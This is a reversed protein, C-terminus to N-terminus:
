TNPTPMVSAALQAEMIGIPVGGLAMTKAEPCMLIFSMIFAPRTIFMM